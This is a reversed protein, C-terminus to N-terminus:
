IIPRGGIALVPPDHGQEPGMLAMVRQETEPDTTFESRTAPGRMGFPIAPSQGFAIGIPMGAAGGGSITTRGGVQLEGQEVNIKIGNRWFRGGDIVVGAPPDFTMRVFIDGPGARVTLTRGVFGVDWSEVSLVLENDLIQVLLENEANFLQVTLLLHDDQRRFLIIPTDDVILPTFPNEGLWPFTFTSRGIVAVAHPGSYHLPYPDSQGVRRNIPDAKAAAVQDASLLGKTKETHHRDCLLVLNDPDHEKVASYPVLHDIEYLPIGCLVCGFGCRQRVQRKIPEPIPPREDSMSLQVLMGTM